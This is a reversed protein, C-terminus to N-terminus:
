LLYAVGLNAFQNYAIYSCNDPNFTKVVVAVDNSGNLLPGYIINEIAIRIRQNTSISTRQWSGGCAGGRAKDLQSGASVLRCLLM